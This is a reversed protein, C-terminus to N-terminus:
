CKKNFESGLIFNEFWNFGVSVDFQEKRLNLNIKEAITIEATPYKQKIEEAKKNCEELNNKCKIIFKPKPHHALYENIDKSWCYKNTFESIKNLEQEVILAKEDM